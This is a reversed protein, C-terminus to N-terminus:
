LEDKPGVNNTYYIEILAKNYKDLNSFDITDQVIFQKRNGFSSPSFYSVKLPNSIDPVNYYKNVEKSIRKLFDTKSIEPYGKSEITTIVEERFNSHITKDVQTDFLCEISIDLISTQSLRFKLSSIQAQLYSLVDSIHELVEFNHYKSNSLNLIKTQTNLDLDMFQSFIGSVALIVSKISLNESELVEYFKNSFSNTISDYYRGSSALNIIKSIDLAHKDIKELIKTLYSFTADQFTMYVYYTYCKSLEGSTKDFFTTYLKKDSTIHSKTIKCKDTDIKTSYKGDYLITQEGQENIRKLTIRKPLFLTESSFFYKLFEKRDFFSAIRSENRFLTIIDTIFFGIIRGDRGVSYFLESSYTSSKTGRYNYLINSTASSIDISNLSFSDKDLLVSVDNLNKNVVKYDEIFVESECFGLLDVYKAENIDFQKAIEKKDLSIAIFISFHKLSEVNLIVDETFGTKILKNDKTDSEVIFNLYSSQLKKNIQVYDINEIFGGESIYSYTWDNTKSSLITYLEVNTCFTITLNLYKLVKENLIWPNRNKSLPIDIQFNASVKSLNKQELFVSTITPVLGLTNFLELERIM